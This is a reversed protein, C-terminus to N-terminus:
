WRCFPRAICPTKGGGATYVHMTDVGGATHVHLTTYKCGWWYLRATCPTKGDGATYVHRAPTDKWWLCYIYITFFYWHPVLKKEANRCKSIIKLMVIYTDCWCWGYISMCPTKCWTCNHTDGGFATYVHLAPTEKWWLCYLRAACPHREVVLQISTRPTRIEVKTCNKYIGSQIDPWDPVPIFLFASVLVLWEGSYPSGTGSQDPVPSSRYRVVGTGSQFTLHRFASGPPM